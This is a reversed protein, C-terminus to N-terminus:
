QKFSTEMGAIFKGSFKESSLTLMTTFPIHGFQLPQNQSAEPMISDQINVTALNYFSVICGPQMTKENIKDRLCVLFLKTYM